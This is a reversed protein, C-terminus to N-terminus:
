SWWRIQVLVATGSEPPPDEHCKHHKNGSKATALLCWLGSSASCKALVEPQCKAAM